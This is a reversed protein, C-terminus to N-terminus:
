CRIIQHRYLAKILDQRTHIFLLIFITNDVIEYLCWHSSQDLRERIKLGFESLRPSFHYLLPQKQIASVSRILLEEVYTSAQISSHGKIIAFQEIEALCDFAFQTIKVDM